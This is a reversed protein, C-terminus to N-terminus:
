EEYFWEVEVDIRAAESARLEGGGSVTGLYAYKEEYRKNKYVAKKYYEGAKEYEGLKYYTKAVNILIIGKESRKLAGLYEDLASKYDGKLYYVNGLNNRASILAPSIELAKKLNEVAEGYRGYRAYVIGLKNYLRPNNKDRELENEISKVKRALELGVMNDIDSKYLGAIQDKTPVDPEWGFEELTVPVYEGWADATLYLGVEGGKKVTENYERAGEQWARLFPEGIMTIEVPIWITDKKEILVGRNDTIQRYDYRSVGTDFMMFIHGPITILATSIGINELLSCYLATLDDCDGTKFRLTERPYQVYDVADETASLETFPTKPDVVYTIGYAGLADFIEIAAQLNQNLINIRENQYQQIVTRAFVKVPPDKPTIFSSLKRDDSWTMANRNYLKFTVNEEKFFEREGVVYDVRVNASLPTDETVSLVKNSFLMHLDLEASEGPKLEPIIKSATPYDMFDKVMVSAKIGTVDKKKSINTIRIKGAPHTEYYKYLASFLPQIKIEEIEISRDYNLEEPNKGFRYNISGVVALASTPNDVALYNLYTVGANLNFNYHLVIDLGLGAKVYPNTAKGILNNNEVLRNIYYGGGLLANVELFKLLPINYSANLGFAYFSSLVDRNAQLRFGSYIFEPQVLLNNILKPNYNLFISGNIGSNLIDKQNGMPMIYGGRAGLTLTYPPSTDKPYLFTPTLLIVTTFLLMLTTNLQTKKKMFKKSIIKYFSKKIICSLM